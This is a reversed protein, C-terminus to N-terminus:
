LLCEDEQVTQGVEELVETRVRRGENDGTFSEGSTVAGSGVTNGRCAAFETSDNSLDTEGLHHVDSTGAFEHLM